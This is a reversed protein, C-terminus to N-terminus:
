TDYFHCRGNIFPVVAADGYLDKYIQTFCKEPYRKHFIAGAQIKALTKMHDDELNQVKEISRNQNTNQDIEFPTVSFCWYAFSAEATM